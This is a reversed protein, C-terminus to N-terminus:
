IRDVTLGLAEKARIVVGSHVAESLQANNECYIESLGALKVLHSRLERNDKRLQTLLGNAVKLAELLRKVESKQENIQDTFGQVFTKGRQFGFEQDKNQPVWDDIM